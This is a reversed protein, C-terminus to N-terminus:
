LNFLMKLQNVAYLVPIMLLLIVVFKIIRGYSRLSDAAQGGLLGPVIMDAVGRSETIPELYPDRNPEERGQGVPNENAKRGSLVTWELHVLGAASHYQGLPPKLSISRQGSDLREDSDVGSLIGVYLKHLVDTFHLAKEALLERDSLLSRHWVQLNVSQPKPQRGIATRFIFRWNYRGNGDKSNQHVDSSLSVEQGQDESNLMSCKVFLNRPEKDPFVIKSISWIVLRIEFEMPLPRVLSVFPHEAVEESKLLEVAIRIKGCSLGSFERVKKSAICFLDRTETPPQFRLKQWDPHHWRDELDIFTRGYFAIETALAQVSLRREDEPSTKPSHEVIILSLISNIPFHANLEISRYFEPNNGSAPNMYDWVEFKGMSAQLEQSAREAESIQGAARLADEHTQSDDGVRLMVSWRPEYISPSQFRLPHRPVLGSASLIHVRLILSSKLVLSSTYRLVREQYSEKVSRGVNSETAAFASTSQEDVNENIAVIVKVNGYWDPLGTSGAGVIPVSVYPLRSASLEAELPTMLEEFHGTSQDSANRTVSISDRTSWSFGELPPAGQTSLKSSLESFEDISEEENPHSSNEGPIYVRPVSIMVNSQLEQVRAAEQTPVDTLSAGSDMWAGSEPIQHNQREPFIKSYMQSLLRRPCPLYTGPRCGSYASTWYFGCPKLHPLSNTFSKRMQLLYSQRPRHHPFIHRLSSPPPSDRVAFQDDKSHWPALSSLSLSAIGCLEDESPNSIPDGDPRNQMLRFQMITQLLPSPSIFGKINLVKHLNLKGNRAHAASERNILQKFFLWENPDEANRGLCATMRPFRGRFRALPLLRVGITYVTIDVPRFDTIASVRPSLIKADTVVEFGLLIKGSYELPTGPSNVLFWEPNDYKM